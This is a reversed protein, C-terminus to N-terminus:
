DNTQNALEINDKVKKLLKKLLNMNLFYNSKNNELNNLIRNNQINSKNQKGDSSELYYISDGDLCSVYHINKNDEEYNVFDIIEKLENNQSGGSGTTLKHEIIFIEDGIKILLDPYKNIYVNRFDFAIDYESLIKNFLKKNDEPFLYSQNNNKFEDITSVKKYSSLLDSEIRKIGTSGKRKSSYADCVVQLAQNSYGHSLYINHRDHIYNEILRKIIEQKEKLTKKITIFQNYSTGQTQFYICFSSYNIFEVDEIIRIIKNIIEELLKQNVANFDLKKLSSYTTILNILEQNNETLSNTQDATNPIVLFGFNEENNKISANKKDKSREFIEINDIKFKM